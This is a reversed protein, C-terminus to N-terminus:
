RASETLSTGCISKGVMWTCAPSGPALGVVMADEIAVTNSRWNVEMAPSSEIIEELVMPAVLMVSCNLKLRSIAEAATSTSVAGSNGGPM